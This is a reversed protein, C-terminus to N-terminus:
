EAVPALFVGERGFHGHLVDPAVNRATSAVRRRAEPRYTEKISGGVGLRSCMGDFLRRPHWKTPWDVEVVNPFPRTDTNRREWTVVHNELGQRELETLYDYIFTESLKSLKERYHLVRM